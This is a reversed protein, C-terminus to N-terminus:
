NIVEFEETSRTILIKRNPAINYTSIFEIHYKGPPVHAPIVISGNTFTNRGKKTAYSYPPFNLLFNGVLQASVDVKVGNTHQQTDVKFLIHDGAKVQKHVVPLEDYYSTVTPFPYLAYFTQYIVMLFM